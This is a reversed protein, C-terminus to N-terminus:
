AIYYLKDAGVERGEGTLLLPQRFSSLLNELIAWAM